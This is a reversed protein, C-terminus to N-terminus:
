HQHREPRDAIGLPQLPGTQSGTEPADTAIRAATGEVDVANDGIGNEDGAIDRPEGVYQVLILKERQLVPVIGDKTSLDRRVVHHAKFGVTPWVERQWCEPGALETDIDLRHTDAGETALDDKCLAGDLFAPEGSGVTTPAADDGCDGEVM